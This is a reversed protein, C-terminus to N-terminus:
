PHMMKVPLSIPIISNFYSPLLLFWFAPLVPAFKLLIHKTLQTAINYWCLILTVRRFNTKHEWESQVIYELLVTLVNGYAYAHLPNNGRPAFKEWISESSPGPRNHWCLKSCLPDSFVSIIFMISAYYSPNLQIHLLWIISIEVFHDNNTSNKSM